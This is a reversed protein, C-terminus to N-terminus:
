ERKCVSIQGLFVIGKSKRWTYLRMRSYKGLKVKIQFRFKMKKGLSSKGWYSIEIKQKRFSYTERKRRVLRPNIVTVDSGTDLKFDCFKVNIKGRFIFPLFLFEANESIRIVKEMNKLANTKGIPNARILEVMGLKGKIRSTLRVNL